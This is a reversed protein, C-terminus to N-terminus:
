IHIGDKLFCYQFLLKPEHELFLQGRDKVGVTIDTNQPRQQLRCM